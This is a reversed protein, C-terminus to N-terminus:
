LPPQEHNTTLTVGLRMGSNIVFADSSLLSLQANVRDAKPPLDM